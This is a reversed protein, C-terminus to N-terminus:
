QSTTGAQPRSCENMLDSITRGCAPPPEPQRLSLYRHQQQHTIVPSLIMMIDLQHILGPPRQSPGPQSLARGPHGPQVRQDALM